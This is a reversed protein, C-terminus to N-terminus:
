SCTCHAELTKTPLPCAHGRDWGLHVPWCLPCEPSLRASQLKWSKELLVQSKVAEQFPLPNRLGMPTQLPLRHETRTVADTPLLLCLGWQGPRRWMMTGLLQPGQAPGRFHRRRAGLLETNCQQSSEVQMLLFEHYSCMVRLPKVSLVAVLTQRGPTHLSRAWSHLGM